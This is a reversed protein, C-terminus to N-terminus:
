CFAAAVGLLINLNNTTFKKKRKKMPLIPANIPTWANVELQLKDPFM